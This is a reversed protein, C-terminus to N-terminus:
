PKPNLQPKNGSNLEKGVKYRLELARVPIKVDSGGSVSQACGM